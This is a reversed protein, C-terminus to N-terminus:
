ILDNIKLWTCICFATFLVFFRWFITDEYTKPKIITYTQKRLVGKHILEPNVFKKNKEIRTEIFFKQNVSQTNEVINQDVQKNDSEEWFFRHSDIPYGLKQLIFKMDILDAESGMPLLSLLLSIAQPKKELLLAMLEGYTQSDTFCNIGTVVKTIKDEIEKKNTLTALHVCIAETKKELHEQQQVNPLDCLKKVFFFDTPNLIAIPLNTFVQLLFYVNSKITQDSLKIQLKSCNKKCLPKVFAFINYTEGESINNKDLEIKLSKFIETVQIEQCLQIIQNKTQTYRSTQIIGETRIFFLVKNIYSLSGLKYSAPTPCLKSSTIKQMMTVLTKYKTQDEKNIVIQYLYKKLAPKLWCGFLLLKECPNEARDLMIAVLDGLTKNSNLLCVFKKKEEEFQTLWTQNNKASAFIKQSLQKIDLGLPIINVKTLKSTEKLFSNLQKPLLNLYNLVPCQLFFAIWNIQDEQTEGQPNIACKNALFSTPILCFETLLLRVENEMEKTITNNKKTMILYLIIQNQIERCLLLCNQYDSDSDLIVLKQVDQILIEKHIKEQQKQKREQQESEMSQELTLFTTQPPQMDLLLKIMYQTSKLSNLQLLKQNFNISINPNKSRINDFLKLIKDIKDNNSESNIPNSIILSAKLFCHFFNIMSIHYM